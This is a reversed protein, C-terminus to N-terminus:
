PSVQVDAPLSRGCECAPVPPPIIHRFTISYRARDVNPDPRLSHEYGVQSAYSMLLLSAHDLDLSAVVRLSAQDRFEFRRTAGLSVMAIPSGDVHHEVKDAHWGAFDRGDRYGNGLAYNFRAGLVIEVENRLEQVSTPWVGNPGTDPFAFEGDGYEAALRPTKVWLGGVLMFGSRFRTSTSLEQEIVRARGVEIFNPIYTVIPTGLADSLVTQSQHSM